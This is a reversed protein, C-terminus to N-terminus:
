RNVEIIVSDVHDLSLVEEVGGDECVYVLKDNRVEIITADGTLHIETENERVSLSYNRM